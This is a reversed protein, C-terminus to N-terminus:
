AGRQATKNSRNGVANKGWINDDDSPELESWAECGYMYVSSIIVKYVPHALLSRGYM